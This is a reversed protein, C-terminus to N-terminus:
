TLLLQTAPNTKSPKEIEIAEAEIAVNWQLYTPLRDFPVSRVIEHQVNALMIAVESMQLNKSGSIVDNLIREIRLLDGIEDPQRM